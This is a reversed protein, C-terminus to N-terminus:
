GLSNVTGAFLLMGNEEDVIAYLFPSDVKIAVRSLKEPESGGGAMWMIATVAAAETGQEDVELFAKHLVSEIFGGGEEYQFGLASFDAGPTFVPGLGLQSLAPAVDAEWEVLFRPLTIDVEMRPANHFATHWSQWNAATLSALFSPLGTPQNPHFILMSFSRRYSVYPLAVAQWDEGALYRIDTSVQHMLQTEQTAGSALRFPGPRTDEVDFESAWSARFYVGNLLLLAPPLLCALLDPSIISNIRGRTQQRVWDNVTTAATPDTFDLTAADADYLNRAHSVFEPALISPQSAWLSTALTLIADAEEFHEDEVTTLQRIWGAFASEARETNAGIGFLVDALATKTAGDAGHLVLALAVLIGLPSIAVNKSTDTEIARQLLELSFHTQAAIASNTQFIPFASM